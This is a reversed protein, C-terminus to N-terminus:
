GRRSVHAGVIGGSRSIRGIDGADGLKAALEVFGVGRARRAVLGLEVGQDERERGPDGDAARRM